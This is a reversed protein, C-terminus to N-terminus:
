GLRALDEARDVDITVSEDPWDLWAVDGRGRLLRGAGQQAVRAAPFHADVLALDDGHGMSALAHLLEPTLLPPLLKLM